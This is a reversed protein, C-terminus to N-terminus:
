YTPLGLDPAPRGALFADLAARAAHRDDWPYEVAGFAMSQEHGKGCILVLDEPRALTLAFYIARGRDPVRWFSQGEVGGQSRCGEAMMALIDDLSETRPDEATLVTLDAERASIEAMLRRKVVDRKGASGFVTIIRGTTMGRAAQIARELANPTHAFDVIVLFTQGRNIREMRGSLGAIAELGQKIAEPSLGLAHGAAAAALMNYVNFQGVLPTSLTARRAPLPPSPSLPAPPLLPLLAPPLHLTFHTSAATYTIDTATVDAPQNIAYTIQRPVPITVLRQYSADDRNLVATKVVAPHHVLHNTPSAVNEFLRAKAALYGEYDGHYDLHEHTINTVAAVDFDIADVRHQALAHSTVELVCHSLGADVMRRLYHQVVPAEPTTVHLALPEEADGIAAKITSLMGAKLGAALLIQYILNTTTTKGDTGTVGVIVLERAPFGHWAASLWALAIATDEVQLYSTDGLAVNLTEPPRQGLILSAGQAVAQGIYHHGDSGTRVRAVFCTGPEVEGTHEVFGTLEVDPGDYAPPQPHPTDAVATRWDALLSYLSRTQTM